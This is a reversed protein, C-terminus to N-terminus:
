FYSLFHRVTYTNLVGLISYFGEGGEAAKRHAVFPYLDGVTPGVCSVDPVGGVLGLKVLGLGVLSIRACGLRVFGFWILSFLNM